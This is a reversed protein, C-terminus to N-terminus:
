KGHYAALEDHAIQQLASAQPPSIGLEQAATERAGLSAPDKGTLRGFVVLAELYYGYASAHYSDWTWLNVKGASIGDYPNPDAFGVAFARNWADGVPAVGRVYPSAAAAADYAKRIDRGMAEIPQGHWHGAEPYTQDARSWTSTILIDVKPNRAHLV